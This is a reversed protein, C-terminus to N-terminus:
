FDCSWSDISWHWVSWTLTFCGTLHLPLPPTQPQGEFACAERFANSIMNTQKLCQAWCVLSGPPGPKQLISYSGLKNIKRTVYRAKAMPGCLTAMYYLYLSGSVWLSACPWRYICWYIDSWLYDSRRDSLMLVNVTSNGMWLKGEQRGRALRGGRQRKRIQGTLGLDAARMRGEGQYHWEIFGLPHLHFHLSSLISQVTSGYPLAM